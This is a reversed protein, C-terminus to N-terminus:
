ECLRSEFYNILQSFGNPKVVFHDFSFQLATQRQEDRPWGSHGIFIAEPYVKKLQLGLQYGDMEPLKVDLIFIKPQISRVYSLAESPRNAVHTRYGHAELFTCMMEALDVNDEVVLISPLLSTM